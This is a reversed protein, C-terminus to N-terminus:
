NEQISSNVIWGWIIHLQTVNSANSQKVTPGLVILGRNLMSFQMSHSLPSELQIKKRLTTQIELHLTM